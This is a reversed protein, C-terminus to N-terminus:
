TMEPRLGRCKQWKLAALHYGHVTVRYDVIATMPWTISEIERKVELIVLSVCNWEATQYAINGRPKSCTTQLNQVEAECSRVVVEHRRINLRAPPASRLNNKFRVVVGVSTPKKKKKEKEASHKHMMKEDHAKSLPIYETSLTPVWGDVATSLDQFHSAVHLLQM